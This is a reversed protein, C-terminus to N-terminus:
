QRRLLHNGAWRSSHDNTKLLQRCKKPHMPVTAYDDMSEMVGFTCPHSADFIDGLGKFVNPIDDIEKHNDKTIVSHIHVKQLNGRSRISALYEINEKVKHFSAGRRITEYTEPTAGDISIKLIDLGADLLREAMDRNLLTANTGFKTTLGKSKAYAIMEPLRDNLLPEGSGSFTVKGLRGECQDIVNKYLGMEMLVTKSGKRHERSYHCMKCKLNCGDAVRFTIVPIYKGVKGRKRDTLAQRQSLKSFFSSLFPIKTTM